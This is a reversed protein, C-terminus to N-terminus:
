SRRPCGHRQGRRGGGAPAMSPGAPAMSEPPSLVALDRRLRRLVPRVPRGLRERDQRLAPQREPQRALVLRVAAGSARDLQPQAELQPGVDGALLQGRLRKRRARWFYANRIPNLVRYGNNDRFWELRMGGVVTDSFNYFMYQNIGYWQALGAAQGINQSVPNANFQWGNDNQFVYTLKDTLENVYVTSM